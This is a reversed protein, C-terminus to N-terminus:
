TGIATTTTSANLPPRRTSRQSPKEVLHNPAARRSSSMLCARSFLMTIAVALAITAHMRPVSRARPSDRMRGQSRFGISVRAYMVSTVGSSTKAM